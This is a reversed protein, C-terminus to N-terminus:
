SWEIMIEVPGDEEDEKSEELDVGAAEATRSVWEKLPDESLDLRLLGAFLGGLFAVPEQVLIFSVSDYTELQQRPSIFVCSSISCAQDYACRSGWWDEHRRSWMMNVGTKVYGLDIRDMLRWRYAEVSKCWRDGWTLRLAWHYTMRPWVFLEALGVKNQWPVIVREM